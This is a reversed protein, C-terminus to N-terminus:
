RFTCYKGSYIIASVVLFRKYKKSNSALNSFSESSLFLAEISTSFDQQVTGKISKNYLENKLKQLGAFATCKM